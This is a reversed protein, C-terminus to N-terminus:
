GLSVDSQLQKMRPIMGLVYGSDRRDYSLVSKEVCTRGVLPSSKAWGGFVSVDVSTVARHIVHGAIISRPGALGGSTPNVLHAKGRPRYIPTALDPNPPTL